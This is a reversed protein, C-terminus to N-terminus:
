KIWSSPALGDELERKDCALSAYYSESLSDSVSSSGEPHSRRTTLEEIIFLTDNMM